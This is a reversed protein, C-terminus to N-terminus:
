WDLPNGIVVRRRSSAAARKVMVTTASTGRHKPDMRFCSEIFSSEEPGYAIWNGGLRRETAQPAPRPTEILARTLIRARDNVHSNVLNEEEMWAWTPTEM